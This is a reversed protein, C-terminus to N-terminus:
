EPMLERLKSLAVNVSMSITSIQIEDGDREALTELSKGELFHERLINAHNRNIRELANEYVAPELGPDEGYIGIGLLEYAM